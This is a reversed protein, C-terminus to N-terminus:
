RFHSDPSFRKGPKNKVGPSNSFSSNCQVKFFLNSICVYPSIM